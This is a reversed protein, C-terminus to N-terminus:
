FGAIMFSIWYDYGNENGATDRCKVYYHYNTGDILGTLLTSHNVGGTTQFTNTMASYPKNPLTDYKCVANENTKLSMITQTTNAPLTGWPQGDWMFPPMTDPIAPTTVSVSASQPSENGAADLASVAYVYTTLPSAGWDSYSTSNFIYGWVQSNRYIKYSAVSGNGSPASWTLDVRYPSTSTAMLNTPAGPPLAATIFTNDGSIALNGSADKSKVRYHYTTAPSLSSLSVSHSTVLSINLLTSSGYSITTGYEVQSDSNENTFWSILASNQTISSVFPSFIIPPTTDAPLTTTTFTSDGPASTNGAADKSVAQFHYLTAPSLGSLFVSHSTVLNSDQSTQSSYNTTLGYLVQSTAPENTTWNIIASNSIISAVSINSIVPPTTDSPAQTTASVSTSQGSVNGAADYAAVRYVYTTSPSLGTDSYNNTASTAIQTAPTCSAGQCRYIRYGTVGVNDTSATWSLNIQSSSIATATLNTPVTPASMDPNGISAIASTWTGTIYNCSTGSLLCLSNDSFTLNSIGDQNLSRFNLTAITGSGSVGGCSSGLRTLGFIIKGPSSPTVLLATSCGQSLFNGETTSIYEILSSDFNLDFSIAFLNNVSDIKLPLSFNTNKQVQINSPDFFVTQASTIFPLFLILLFSIFFYTRKVNLFKISKKFINTITNFLLVM